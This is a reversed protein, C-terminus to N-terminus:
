KILKNHECGLTEGEWDLIAQTTDNLGKSITIFSVGTSGVEGSHLAGRPITFSYGVHKPKLNYVKDEVKFVYDGGLYIITSETKHHRHPPIIAGPNFIYLDAKYGEYPSDLSIGIAKGLFQIKSFNLSEISKKTREVILELEM